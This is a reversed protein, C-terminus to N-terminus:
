LCCSSVMDRMFRYKSKTSTPPLSDSACVQLLYGTLNPLMPSSLKQIAEALGLIGFALGFTFLLTSRFVCADYELSKRSIARLKNLAIKRNGREFYRAYLDEVTQIYGDVVDSVAFYAFDVKELMYQGAARSNILKGYKKSIKQFAIRNLLSYSKLMELGRYYETMAKELKRKATSYSIEASAPRSIYDRRLTETNRLLLKAKSGKRIHGNKIISLRDVPGEIRANSASDTAVNPERTRNPVDSGYPLGEQCADIGRSQRIRSQRTLTIENIRQERMIHLQDRLVQLRRTAEDEKQKYFDGIEGLEKDLFNFFEFDAKRFDAEKSADPQGPTGM